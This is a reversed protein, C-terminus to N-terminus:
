GTGDQDPWFVALPLDPDARLMRGLYYTNVIGVDCQGAAIANLVENDSAFPPAALNKVWGRVIEETQQEGHEALFMAVLSQNYVKKAPRLGARGRWEPAARAAYGSLAGPDVADTNYVIRRARVSLGFWRNDPDRLHAPVNRGLVESNTAQ